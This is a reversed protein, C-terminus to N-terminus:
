GDAGTALIGNKYGSIKANEIRVNKHGDIRIGIGRLTDWPTGNTAGRLEGVFRVRVDDATIRIVGNTNADALIYGAPIEVVCSQSIETDDKSLVVRPNTDQAVLSITAGLLLIVRRMFRM